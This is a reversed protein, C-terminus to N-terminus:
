QVFVYGFGLMLYGMAFICIVGIVDKIIEIIESKM